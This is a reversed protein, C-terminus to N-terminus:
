VFLDELEKFYNIKEDYDDIILCTLENYTKKPMDIIHRSYQFNHNFNDICQNVGHIVTSHDRNNFQEAIQNLNYDLIERLIYFISNRYFVLHMKRNHSLLDSRNVKFNKELFTFIVNMDTKIEFEPRNFVVKKQKTPTNITM